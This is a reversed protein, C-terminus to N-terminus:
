DKVCRFGSHNQASTVEGKGRSGNIYRACYNPACLYSGGRQVRKPAGPEAPDFGSDPGQPNHTAKDRNKKWCDHYYDIQYWDVCWEWVNGAMDYLGYANATYSGVPAIGEFGDDKTNEEPFEGQWVNALWKKEPTLEDGWPFKKRDLGSRAAFEWEAETPLRKKAWKCFAVADEYSVHVVPHREKGKITSGPGDPHKWSAGYSLDWWGQHTALNYQGPRPKKFVISFPKLDERPVNPFDKADPKKEAVTVYRTADVFKAFQENTVEHTDM